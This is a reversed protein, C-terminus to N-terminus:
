TWHGQVARVAPRRPTTTLLDTRRRAIRCEHPSALRQPSMEAERKQVDRLGRPEADCVDVPAPMRAVVFSRTLQRM